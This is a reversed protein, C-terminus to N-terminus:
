LLWFHKQLTSIKELTKKDKWKLINETFKKRSSKKKKKQKFQKNMYTRTCTYEKLM